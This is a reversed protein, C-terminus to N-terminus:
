SRSTRSSTPALGATQASSDRLSRRKQPLPFQSVTVEPSAASPKASVNGAKVASSASGGFLWRSLFPSTRILQSIVLCAAVVAVSLGGIIILELIDNNRHWFLSKMVPIRPLLFWHIMYIDLTRRGVFQMTRSLRGDANWYERGRWFASLVVAVIAASGALGLAYVASEHLHLQRSFHAVSLAAVATLVAVTAVSNKELWSLFLEKRAGAITGAVFFIFFRACKTLPFWRDASDLGVGAGHLAPVMAYLAVAIAVLVGTRSKPFFRRSLASILYYVGLMVFLALTFWYGGPFTWDWSTLGVFLCFFVVTPVLEVRAKVATRRLAFAATWAEVAKSAVFGSIFFFMPMRLAVFLESIVSPSDYLDFSAGRVHHFVVLTMTLGRVVDLTKIRGSSQSHNM